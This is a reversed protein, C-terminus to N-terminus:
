NSEVDAWIGEEAVSHLWLPLPTFLSNITKSLFVLTKWGMKPLYLLTSTLSMHESFPSWWLRLMKHVSLSSVGEWTVATCILFIVDSDRRPFPYCQWLAQFFGVLGWCPSTNNMHHGYKLQDQLPLTLKDHVWKAKYSVLLKSLSSHM